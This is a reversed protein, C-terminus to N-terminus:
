RQREGRIAKLAAPVSGAPAIKPSAAAIVGDPDIVYQSRIIGDYAKGYM